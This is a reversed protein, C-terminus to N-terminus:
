TTSQPIKRRSAERAFRLLGIVDGNFVLYLTVPVFRRQYRMIVATTRSSFNEIAEAAQLIEDM